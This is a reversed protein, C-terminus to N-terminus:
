EEWPAGFLLETSSIPKGIYPGYHTASTTLHNHARGAEGLIAYALQSILSVSAGTLTVIDGHTSLTVDEGDSVSNQAIFVASSVHYNRDDPKFNLARILSTGLYTLFYRGNTIDYSMDAYPLVNNVSADIQIADYSSGRNQNRHYIYAKEDSATDDYTVFVTVEEANPTIVCGDMLTITNTTVLTGHSAPSLSLSANTIRHILINTNNDDYWLLLAAGWQPSYTLVNAENVHTGSEIVIASGHSASSDTLYSLAYVELNGGSTTAAVIVSQDDSDYVAARKNIGTPYTSFSSMAFSSGFSISTGSVTGWYGLGVAGEHLFIFVRSNASDYCCSFGDTADADTHITVPTGFTLSGASPTCVVASITNATLDSYLLIIQDSDSDYCNAIYGVIGSATLILGGDALTLGVSGPADALPYSCWYLEKGDLNGIAFMYHYGDEVSYVCSCLKDAFNSGDFDTSIKVAGVNLYSGRMQEVEGPATISPVVFSGASISGRATRTLLTNSIDSPPKWSVTTEGSDVGLWYGSKGSLSPLGAAAQAAAAATEAVDKYGLALDKYGEATDSWYKASFTTSGDGGYYTPIESESVAWDKAGNGWHFASFTTSGDGGGDTSVATNIANGAWEKSGAAHHLASRDTTGNGGADTSVAVGVAAQAWEEAYTVQDTSDSFTTNMQGISTNMEVVMPVMWTLLTDANVSFAERDGDRDPLSGGYTTIVDITM